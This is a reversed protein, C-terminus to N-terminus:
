RRKQRLLFYLEIVTPIVYGIGTGLASGAIGMDLICVFIIDLIVNAAGAGFALFMGLKPKGAVVIMNQFLVQCISTPMFLLLTSLYKRCYPFLRKSAGLGRIIQDIFLIGTGTIILGIIVGAIAILTFDQPARKANGEGMKKAVLASYGTALMGGLGIIINIIPTVINLASLADTNVFRSIIITDGITYLGMFVMMIMTPAAFKLLSLMNFNKALPNAKSTILNDSM